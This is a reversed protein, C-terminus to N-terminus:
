VHARGIERALAPSPRTAGRELSDEALTALTLADLKIRNELDTKQSRGYTIGLPIELAVLVAVALALYTALLQRRM